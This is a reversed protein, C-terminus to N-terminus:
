FIWTISPYTSLSISGKLTQFSSDAEQTWNYGNKKLLSTLPAATLFRRYYGMLGLFGRLSRLGTPRPWGEVAEIKTNDMQIGETSITHGLYEVKSQGFRYKSKELLLQHRKLINFAEQVHELHEEWTRSYVLIDDFFFLIFWCLHPSFIENMLQQFTTPANTLGFPMVLFKFQGQHM